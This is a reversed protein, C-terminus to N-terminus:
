RQSLQPIQAVYFCRDQLSFVWAANEKSFTEGNGVAKPATKSPESLTPASIWQSRDSLWFVEPGHRDKAAIAEAPSLYGDEELVHHYSRQNELLLLVQTM